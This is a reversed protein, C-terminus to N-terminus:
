SAGPWRCAGLAVPEMGLGADDALVDALLEVTDVAGQRAHAVVVEGHRRVLGRGQERRPELHQAVRNWAHARHDHEVGVARHDRGADVGQEAAVEGVAVVECAGLGRLAGRRQVDRRRELGREVVVRDDEAPRDDRRVAGEGAGRTAARSGSYKSTSIRETSYAGSM